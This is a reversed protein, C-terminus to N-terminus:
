CEKGIDRHKVFFSVGDLSQEALRQVLAVSRHRGGTCGIAIQVFSRGEKKAQQLCFTVYGELQQWYAQTVDHSFIYDVVSQDKGSLAALNEVFYPNPLFRVDFVMNSEHPVGHKFGFSILTVTMPLAKDHSVLSRVFHRLEHVTFQDTAILVDAKQKLPMLLRKEEQLAEELSGCADLPHKRRTEQFRKMLVSVSATLFIISIVFGDSRAQMIHYDLLSLDNGARVDIGLAIGQITPASSDVSNLFPRFLSVPLNDICSFGVDELVRLVSSKGAGSFGTVIFIPISM